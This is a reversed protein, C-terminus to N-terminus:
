FVLGSPLDTKKDPCVLLKSVKNFRQLQHLLDAEESDGGLTGRRPMTRASTLWHAMSKVM